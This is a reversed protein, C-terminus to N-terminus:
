ENIQYINYIFSSPSTMQVYIGYKGPETIIGKEIADTLASAYPWLSPEPDPIIPLEPMTQFDVVFVDLGDVHQLM